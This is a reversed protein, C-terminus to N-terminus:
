QSAKISNYCDLPDAYSGIALNMPTARTKDFLNTLSYDFLVVSHNISVPNSLCYFFPKEQLLVLCFHNQKYSTCIHFMPYVHIANTYESGVDTTDGTSMNSVQLHVWIHNLCYFFPNDQLLIPGFYFQNRKDM